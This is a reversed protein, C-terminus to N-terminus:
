RRAKTTSFPEGCYPCRYPKGLMTSAAVGLRYSIGLTQVAKKHRRCGTKVWVRGMCLPCKWSYSLIFFLLISIAWVGFLIAGTRIWQEVDTIMGAAILGVGTAALLINIIYHFAGFRLSRLSQSSQQRHM